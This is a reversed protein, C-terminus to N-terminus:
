NSLAAVRVGLLSSVLVECITLAEGPGAPASSLLRSKDERKELTGAHGAVVAIDAPGPLLEPGVDKEMSMARILVPIRVISEAVTPCATVLAFVTSGRIKAVPCSIPTCTNSGPNAVPPAPPTKGWPINCKSSTCVTLGSSSPVSVARAIWLVEDDSGSWARLEQLAKVASDGDVRAGDREEESM